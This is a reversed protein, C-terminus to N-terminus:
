LAMLQLRPHSRKLQFVIGTNDGTVKNLVYDVVAELVRDSAAFQTM